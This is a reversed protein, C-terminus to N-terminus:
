IGTAEADPKLGLASLVARLDPSLPATVVVPHGDEPDAYRLTHAHLFLRHLGLEGLWRNLDPDGYKPDGAIPHGVHAAHV